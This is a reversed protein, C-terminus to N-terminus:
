KELYKLIYIRFKPVFVSSPEAFFVSTALITVFMQIDSEMCVSADPTQWHLTRISFCHRVIRVM